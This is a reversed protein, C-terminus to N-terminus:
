MIEDSVKPLPPTVDIGGTFELLRWDDPVVARWSGGLQVNTQGHGKDRFMRFMRLATGPNDYVARRRGNWFPKGALTILYLKM